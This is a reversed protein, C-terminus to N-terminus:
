YLILNLYMSYDSDLNCGVAHLLLLFQMARQCLQCPNYSISPYSIHASTQSLGRTPRIDGGGGETLGM